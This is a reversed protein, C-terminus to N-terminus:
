HTQPQAPSTAFQAVLGRWLADRERGLHAGSADGRADAAVALHVMVLRLVPDVFIAQGYIGLLVFSRHDGPLLWVQYGYGLYHSGHSDMTGPRFAAPQRAPDTMDLLYPRPVVQRGRVRGDDALMQGLRAYDRATASFGGGLLEVGDGPNLLYSAASEAGMPQWLKEDIYSCADRRTAARLVLGLIESQATAYSFHEGQAYERETVGRAAAVLGKRRAVRNFAARDDNPGYDEVFRAGSAMRMLNVIRTQGYLTGALAPVYQDATDDLSHIAGDQLAEGIALALLTKAMSNSLMRMERSRGYGYREAELRGDKLVLLATVRQHQLYDDLGYTAGEYRYSLAPRPAAPPLPVSDAAPALLCHPGFSDFASFSGVIYRPENMQAKRPAVPYGDDRGLLAEDPAAAVSRALILLPVLFLWGRM